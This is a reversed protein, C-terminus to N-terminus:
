VLRRVQLRTYNETGGQVFDTGIEKIAEISILKKIYYYASQEYIKLEKAIQAAYKPKDSILKLIKWAIPNSLIHIKKENELMSIKKEFVKDEYSYIIKKEIVM